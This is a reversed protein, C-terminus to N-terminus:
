GSSWCCSLWLLPKQCFSPPSKVAAARDAMNTDGVIEIISLHTTFPYKPILEELVRASCKDFFGGVVFRDELTQAKVGLGSEFM